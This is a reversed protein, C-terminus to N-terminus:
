LWKVMGGYWWVGACVCVVYVCVCVHPVCNYRMFDCRVLWFIHIFCLWFSRLSIHWVFLSFFVHNLSLYEYYLSGWYIQRQIFIWKKTKEEKQEILLLYYYLLICNFLLSNRKLRKSNACKGYWLLYFSFTSTSTSHPHFFIKSENMTEASVLFLFVNVIRKFRKCDFVSM